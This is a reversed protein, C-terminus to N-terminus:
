PWSGQPWSHDPTFRRWVDARPIFLRGSQNSQQPGSPRPASRDIVSVTAGKPDDVRLQNVQDFPWFFDLQNAEIAMDLPNMAWEDAWKL